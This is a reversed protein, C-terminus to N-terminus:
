ARRKRVERMSVKGKGKGSVKGKNRVKEAVFKEKEAANAKEAHKKLILSNFDSPSIVEQVIKYLRKM